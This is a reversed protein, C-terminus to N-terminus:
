MVQLLVNVVHLERNWKQALDNVACSADVTAPDLTPGRRDGTQYGERDHGGYDYDHWRSIRPHRESLRAIRPGRVGGEYRPVAM